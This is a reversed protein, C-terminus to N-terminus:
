RGGRARRMEEAERAAKAQRNKGSANTNGKPAGPEDPPWFFDLMFRASAVCEARTPGCVEVKRGGPGALWVSPRGRVMTVRVGRNRAVSRLTIEPTTSM